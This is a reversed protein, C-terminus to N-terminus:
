RTVTKHLIMSTRRWKQLTKDLRKVETSDAGVEAVLAARWVDGRQVAEECFTKAEASLDRWTADGEARLKSSEALLRDAQEFAERARLWLEADSEFEKVDAFPGPANRGRNEDSYSMGEFPDVPGSAEAASEAARDGSGVGQQRKGLMIGFVVIGAIISLVFFAAFM